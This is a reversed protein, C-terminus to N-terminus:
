VCLSTTTLSWTETSPLTDEEYAIGQTDDSPNNLDMLLISDISIESALSRTTTEIDVGGGTANEGSPCTANIAKLDSTDVTTTATVMHQGSIPKACIGTVYLTWAATYKADEHASVSVSTAATTSTGNFTAQNVLVEGFGDGVDYGYGLLTKTGPCTATVTKDGSGPGLSATALVLGAPAPACNAQVSVSWLGTFVDTEKATVQATGTGIDPLLQEIAVQGGGNFISGSLGVVTTGAPCAVTMTKSQASNYASDPSSVRILGPLAASAPSAPLALGALVIGAVAAIATAALRRNRM